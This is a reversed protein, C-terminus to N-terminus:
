HAVRVIRKVVAAAAEAAVARMTALNGGMAHGGYWTNPVSAKM